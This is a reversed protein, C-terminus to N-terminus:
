SQHNFHQIYKYMLDNNLYETDSLDVLIDNHLDCYFYKLHIKDTLILISEITDEAANVTKVSTM